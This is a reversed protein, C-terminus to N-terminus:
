SQKLYLTSSILIDKAVPKSLITPEDVNYDAFIVPIKCKVVIYGNEKSLQAKFKVERTIGHITLLGSLDADIKVFNGSIDTLVKGSFVARPYKDGELHKEYFHEQMLEYDFEFSDINVSVDVNGTQVDLNVSAEETFAEIDSLVTETYFEIKGHDFSYVQAHLVNLSFLLGTLILYKNFGNNM